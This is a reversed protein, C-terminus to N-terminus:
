VPNVRADPPVVPDIYEANLSTVVNKTADEESVRKDQVDLIQGLMMVLMRRAHDATGNGADCSCLMIMLTPYAEAFRPYARKLQREARAGGGLMPAQSLIDDAIRLVEDPTMGCTLTLDQVPRPDVPDVPDVPDLVPTGKDGAKM